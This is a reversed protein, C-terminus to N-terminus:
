SLLATDFGEDEQEAKSQCSRGQRKQQAAVQQEDAVVRVAYLSFDDAVVAHAVVACGHVACYEKDGVTAAAEDLDAVLEVRRKGLRNDALYDFNDVRLAIGFLGTNGM